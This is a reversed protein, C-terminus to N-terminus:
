VHVMLNNFSQFTDCLQYVYFHSVYYVIAKCDHIQFYDKLIPQLKILGQKCAQVISINWTIM